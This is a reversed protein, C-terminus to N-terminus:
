RDNKLHRDPDPDRDCNKIFIPIPIEIEIKAIPTMGQYCKM